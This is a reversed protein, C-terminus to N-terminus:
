NCDTIVSKNIISCTNCFSHFITNSKLWAGEYTTVTISWIGDTHFCICSAVIKLLEWLWMQLKKTIAISIIKSKEESVM